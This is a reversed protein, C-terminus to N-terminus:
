PRSRNTHEVLADVFVDWTSPPPLEHGVGDLEIFRAGPIAEALARGHAPPFLPDESGHVVLTPLDGLDSLRGRVPEGEQIVLSHNTLGAAVDRSRDAVRAAIARRRPEDFTDPGAYPRDIEVLHRIVAERDDFDPEPEPEALAARLRPAIGPLDRGSRDVPSTGVLTLTALRDRHGLALGQAIGGGMSLGVLHARDLGLGDLVALADTTLDAGTYGPAGAPYSTSRGTDRHDYRVVRRGRGALRRCLEEDWYDMSSSAGAILLIPPAGPDGTTEVCLEAGGGANVMQQEVRM